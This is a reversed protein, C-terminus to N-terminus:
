AKKLRGADELRKRKGADKRVRKFNFLVYFAKALGTWHLVVAPFISFERAVKWWTLKPRVIRGDVMQFNTDYLTYMAYHGGALDVNEFSEPQHRHQKGDAFHAFDHNQHIVTISDSTDIVPLHKVRGHFIMWNDWGARGVAFPPIETFITRPFIFYDSGTAKHLKSGKITAEIFEKEWGPHIDLPETVKADWRRGILLFEEKTQRVLDITKLLDPFLLIDANVYCLFEADSKERVLGFISDIRPTGSENRAVDPIYGVGLEKATQGVGEEDGVLWIEVDKGLAKWSQIANRQIIKIHNDTFPKPATFLAVRAL